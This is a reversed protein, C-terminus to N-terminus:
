ATSRGSGATRPSIRRPRPIGTPRICSPPGAARAEAIAEDIIPVVDEGGEVFLSGNPHAFDNQVDVVVLATHPDYVIRAM